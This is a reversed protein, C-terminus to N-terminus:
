QGVELTSVIWQALDLAQENSLQIVTASNYSERGFLMTSRRVEISIGFGTDAAELVYKRHEPAKEEPVTIVLAGDM